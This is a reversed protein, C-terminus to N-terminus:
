VAIKNLLLCTQVLYTKNYVFQSWNSPITQGKQNSRSMPCGNCSLHIRNSIFNPEHSARVNFRSRYAPDSRGNISGPGRGHSAKDTFMAIFRRRRRIKDMTHVEETWRHTLHISNLTRAHVRRYARARAHVRTRRVNDM